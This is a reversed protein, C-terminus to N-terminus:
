IQNTRSHQSYKDESGLNRNELKLVVDATYLAVEIDVVGDADSIRM